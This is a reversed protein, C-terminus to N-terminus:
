VSWREIRAFHHLTRQMWHQGRTIKAWLWGDPTASGLRSILLTVASTLARNASTSPTRAPDIKYHAAQCCWHRKRLTTVKVIQKYVTLKYM